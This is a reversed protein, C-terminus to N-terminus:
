QGNEEPDQGADSRLRTRAFALARVEAEPFAGKLLEAGQILTSGTTVVDDILLIRTLPVPFRRGVPGDGGKKKLRFRSPSKKRFGRSQQHQAKGGPIKELLPAWPVATLKSIQAVPLTVPCFDREWHARRSIPIPVLVQAWRVDEGLNKIVLRALIQSHPRRYKYKYHHLLSRGHGENLFLTRLRAIPLPNVQCAPCPADGLPHDCKECRAIAPDHGLNEECHACLRQSDGPALLSGCLDCPAPAWLSLIIKFQGLFFAPSLNSFRRFLPAVLPITKDGVHFNETQEM